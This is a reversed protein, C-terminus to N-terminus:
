DFSQILKSGSQVDKKKKLVKLSHLLPSLFFFVKKRDTSLKVKKMSFFKENEGLKIQVAFFYFFLKALKEKVNKMIMLQHM